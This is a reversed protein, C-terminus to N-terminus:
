NASDWTGVDLRTSHRNYQKAYKPSASIAFLFSFVKRLFIGITM